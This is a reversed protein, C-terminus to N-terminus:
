SIRAPFVAGGDQRGQSCSTLASSTPCRSARTDVECAEAVALDGNVACGSHAILPGLLPLLQPDHSYGIALAATRRIDATLDSAAIKIPTRDAREASILVAAARVGVDVEQTWTLVTAGPVKPSRGLARLLGRQCNSIRASPVV